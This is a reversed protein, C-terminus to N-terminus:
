FTAVVDLLSTKVTVLFRVQKEQVISFARIQSLLLPVTVFVKNLQQQKETQFKQIELETAQLNKDISKEKTQLLNNQHKLEEVSKQFELLIEEQDLRKERLEMVKEYILNDCDKPCSDDNAKITAGGAMNNTSDNSEEESENSSDESDDLENADNATLHDNSSDKGLNENKKSHRKIKRKFIRKLQDYFINREGVIHDFEKLIRIRQLINSQHCHMM